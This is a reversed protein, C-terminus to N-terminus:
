MPVLKVCKSTLNLNPHLYFKNTGGSSDNTILVKRNKIKLGLDRLSNNFTHRISHLTAKERGNLALISQM